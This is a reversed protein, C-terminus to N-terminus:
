PIRDILNRAAVTVLLRDYTITFDFRRDEDAVDGDDDRERAILAAAHHPGLILVAWESCLPDDASLRVGRIGRGLNEPLEEGFVAVLPSSKAAERYRHRTSGTFNEVRQLATLVMPPDIASMAQIEIHRSFALLTGKRATRVATQDAIVGFPTAAASHVPHKMPPPSWGVSTQDDLPESRGFRYGQGLTAGMALAQELHADTEIGEALLVSGTRERHALVAALSRAQEDDPQFQILRLDLKVVDPCIVDLLALSDPHAGVDDLAIGFGDARLAAVKRLLAHPHELLSRETLEFTM